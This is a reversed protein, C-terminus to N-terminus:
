PMGLRSFEVEVEICFKMLCVETGPCVSIFGFEAM